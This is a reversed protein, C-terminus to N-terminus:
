HSFGSNRYGNELESKTHEGPRTVWFSVLFPLNPTKGTGDHEWSKDRILHPRKPFHGLQLHHKLVVSPLIGLIHGINMLTGEEEGDYIGNNTFNTMEGHPKGWSIGMTPSIRSKKWPNELAVIWSPQQTWSRCSSCSTPSHSRVPEQPFPLFSSPFNM